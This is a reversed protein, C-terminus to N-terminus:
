PHTSPATYALKRTGGEERDSQLVGLSVCGAVEDWAAPDFVDLCIGADVTVVSGEGVGGEEGAEAGKEFVATGCVAFGHVLVVSHADADGSCPEGVHM